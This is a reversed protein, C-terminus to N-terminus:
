SMDGIKDYTHDLEYTQGDVDFTSIQGLVPLDFKFFMKIKYYSRQPYYVHYNTRKWFCWYYKQGINAPMDVSGDKVKNGDLNKVGYWGSPCTGMEQYNNAKLYDNITKYGKDTIGEHKEIITLVENKVRFSKSYNITLALYSAFILIFIIVLQFIWTSGIAERM